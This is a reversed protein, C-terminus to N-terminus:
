RKRALMIGDRVTLLVNEVREDAVIHANLAVIAHDDVSSPALVRGSWLMNDAVILGGRRLLPLVAEYYALYNGKDADIFCLDFPASGALARLTELAPALRITIKRGHPSSDFYRRALGTAVPDVDCTILEGDDPLAEAMCLGSFGTFTGIELVRRAGCLGVLLKLLTGEVRGVQM